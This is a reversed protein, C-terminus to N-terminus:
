VGPALRDRGPLLRCPALPATQAVPWALQAPPVRSAVTEDGPHFPFPAPVPTTVPAGGPRPPGRTSGPGRLRLPDSRMFRRLVFPPPTDPVARFITRPAPSTRPDSPSAMASPASVTLSAPARATSATLSANGPPPVRRAAVFDLVLAFPL